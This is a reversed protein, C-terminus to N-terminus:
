TTSPPTPECHHSGFSAPSLTLFQSAPLRVGTHPTPCHPNTCRLGVMYTDQEESLFLYGLHLADGVAFNNGECYRCTGRRRHVQELVRKKQELTLMTIEPRRFDAAGM